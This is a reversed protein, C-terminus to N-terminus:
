RIVALRCRAYSRQSREYEAGGPAWDPGGDHECPWLLCTCPAPPVTGQQALYHARACDACRLEGGEFELASDNHTRVKRNCCPTRPGPFPVGARVAGWGWAHDNVLWPSM